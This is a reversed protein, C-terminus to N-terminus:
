ANLNTNFEVAFTVGSNVATSTACNENQGDVYVILAIIHETNQAFGPSIASSTVASTSWSAYPTAFSQAAYTSDLYGHMTGASNVCALVKQATIDVLVANIYTGTVTGGPTLKATVDNLTTDGTSKVYFTKAVYSTSTAGGTTKATYSNYEAAEKTVCSAILDTAEDMTSAPTAFAISVPDKEVEDTWELNTKYTSNDDSILLGTPASASITVPGTEVKKNLTYWAYTASGLAVLAVLLMAISSVLMKSRKTTKM